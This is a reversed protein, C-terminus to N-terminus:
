FRFYIFLVVGHSFVTAGVFAVVVALGVGLVV